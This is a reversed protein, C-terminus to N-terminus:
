QNEERYESNPNDKYDDVIHKMDKYISRVTDASDYFGSTIEYGDDETFISFFLIDCGKDREVDIECGRYSGKM